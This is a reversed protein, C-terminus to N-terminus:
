AEHFSCNCTAVVILQCTHASVEELERWWRQADATDGEERQSTAPPRASKAPAPPPQNSWFDERAFSTGPQQFQPARQGSAASSAPVPPPARDELDGLAQAAKSGLLKRTRRRGAAQAEAVNQRELETGLEQTQLTRAQAASPQKHRRPPVLGTNDQVFSDWERSDDFHRHAARSQNDTEPLVDDRSSLAQRQKRRAAAAVNTRGQHPLPSSCSLPM